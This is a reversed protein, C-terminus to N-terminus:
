FGYNSDPSFPSLWWWFNNAGDYLWLGQAGFNVILSTNGADTWFNGRVMFVPNDTNLQVWGSTTSDYLWLGEAGMDVALEEDVAVETAVNPDFPEVAGDSDPSFINLNTVTGPFTGYSWVNLGPTANYVFVLQDNANGGFKASCAFATQQPIIQHWGSATNNELLWLGLAGFDGILDEGTGGLFKGSVDDNGALPTGTLQLYQPSGTWWLRWLGATPFSWAGQASAPPTTAMRLGGAPNLGSFQTWGGVGGNNDDYRWVGLSGFDAQLEQFGDGDDDTAFLGDPNQGSLQVWNGPYGNYTWKWLGIAGFDGIIAESGNGLFKVSMITEPNVGTIQNWVSDYGASFGEMVWLGLTGFDGVFEETNTADNTINVDAAVIGRYGTSTNSPYQSIGKAQQTGTGTPAPGLARIPAGHRPGLGSQAGLPLSMALFCALTLIFVANKKV